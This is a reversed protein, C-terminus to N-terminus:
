REETYNDPINEDAFDCKPNSCEWFYRDGFLVGTECKPCPAEDYGPLDSLNCGDPLNPNSM